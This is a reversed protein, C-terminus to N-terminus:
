GQGSFIAISLTFLVFLAVSMYVWDREQAWVVALVFVRSVPTCALLFIGSSLFLDGSSLQWPNFFLDSLSVPSSQAVGAQMQLIIGIGMLVM